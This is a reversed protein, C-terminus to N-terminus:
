VTRGNVPSLGAMSIVDAPPVMHGDVYVLDGATPGMSVSADWVHKGRRQLIVKAKALPTDSTPAKLHARQTVTRPKLTQIGEKLITVWRRKGVANGCYIVQWDILKAQRLDDFLTTVMNASVKLTRGLEAADPCPWGLTACKTLAALLRAGNAARQERWDHNAM